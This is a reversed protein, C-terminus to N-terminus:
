SHKPRTSRCKYPGLSNYCLLSFWELNGNLFAGKIFDEAYFCLLGRFLKFMSYKLNINHSNTQIIKVKTKPFDHRKGEMQYCIARFRKIGM